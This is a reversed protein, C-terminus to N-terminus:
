RAADTMSDVVGVHRDVEGRIRSDGAEVMAHSLNPPCHGPGPALESSRSTATIFGIRPRATDLPMAPPVGADKLTEFSQLSKSWLVASFYSYSALLSM